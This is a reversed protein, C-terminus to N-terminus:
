KSPRTPKRSCATASAEHTAPWRSMSITSLSGAGNSRRFLKSGADSVGLHISRWSMHCQLLDHARLHHVGRSGNAWRSELRELCRARTRPRAIEATPVKVVHASCGALHRRPRLPEDQERAEDVRM